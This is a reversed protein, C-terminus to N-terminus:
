EMSSDMWEWWSGHRREQQDSGPNRKKKGGDKREGKGGPHVTIWRADAGYKETLYEIFSM